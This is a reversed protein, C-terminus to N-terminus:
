PMMCGAAHDGFHQVDCVAVEQPAQQTFQVRVLHFTRAPKLLYRSATCQCVYDVHETVIETADAIRGVSVVLSVGFTPSIEAPLGLM